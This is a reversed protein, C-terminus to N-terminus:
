GATIGAAMGRSEKSFHCAVSHGNEDAKQLTPAEVKCKERAMWCRPAFRCGPAPNIPSPVDGKLVIRSIKKGVEVKPVASLLAITYPHMTNEFIVDTPAIEIIEGLYMVAIRNSIHRVVSLDHSIFLFSLGRKAQLDMLLNIITAQISVDLSSVPEDCVIFEPSLSLARAIGVIQRKGGDLEHPYKNLLDESIGTDICLENIAEELKAGSSIKHIQYSEKLISKITKRPNLSSYPDQFIIQMSKCISLHGKKPAKFIDKDKFFMEGSTKPILRMLVNGVTSKGCGSEGVLGLTEGPYIDFNIGDVAHLRGKGKVEFHKVLNRVKILPEKDTVTM